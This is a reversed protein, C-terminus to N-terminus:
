FGAVGKKKFYATVQEADSDALIEGDIDLTPTLTQGSKEVLEDFHKKNNRCEREAFAIHKEQFLARVEDCWPCGLKTYLIIKM